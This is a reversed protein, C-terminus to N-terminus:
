EQELTSKGTAVASMTAVVTGNHDCSWILKGDIMKVPKGCEKCIYEEM